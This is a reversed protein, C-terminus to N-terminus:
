DTGPLKTIRLGSIKWIAIKEEWVQISNILLSFYENIVQKIMKGM